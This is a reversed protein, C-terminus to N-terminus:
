LATPLDQLARLQQDFHMTQPDLPGVRQGDTEWGTGGTLPHILLQWMVAILPWRDGWLSLVQRPQQRQQEDLAVAGAVTRGTATTWVAIFRDRWRAISRRSCDIRQRVQEEERSRRDTGLVAM